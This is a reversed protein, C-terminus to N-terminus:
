APSVELAVDMAPASHTLRGVSILLGGVAAIDGVNELTVGGSIELPVRGAVLRAAERVTELDANDLLIADAGVALATKLEELSEVEVEVKLTHPAGAKARVVAEEVGGAMRLHNRKILVGDDLGGRHLRGGGAQVAYRELARLGPLTKRTCLVVSGTGECAEVFRRTLTAVGSIHQLFNLAVREAGLISRAPGRVEALATGAEVATGDFVSTTVAVSPDLLVFTRRFVSLGAVVGPARAVARGQAVAGDPVTIGSTVDGSRGLDEALAGRILEDLDFPLEMAGIILATDDLRV